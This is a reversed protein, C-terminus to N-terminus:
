NFKNNLIEKVDIKISKREIFTLATTSINKFALQIEWKNLSGIKIINSIKKGVIIEGDDVSEAANQNKIRVGIERYHYM